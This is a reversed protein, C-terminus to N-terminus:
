KSTGCRRMLDRLNTPQQDHPHFLDLISRLTLKKKKKKVSDFFRSSVRMTFLTGICFLCKESSSDVSSREFLLVPSNRISREKFEENKLFLCSIYM